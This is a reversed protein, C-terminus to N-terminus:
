GKHRSMTRGAGHCTSHFAGGIGPKWGPEVRARPNARQDIRPGSRLTRGDECRMVDRDNGLGRAVACRTSSLASGCTGPPNSEGGTRTTTSLRAETSVRGGRRSM